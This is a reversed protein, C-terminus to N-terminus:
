ATPTPSSSRPTPTSTSSRSGGTKRDAYDNHMNAAMPGPRYLAVLAAVDEFSSPALSRMLSRMPGGELQFVGISRRPLAPRADRSRGAPHPRHRPRRRAHGQHDRAHRHDRRPEASRPLGDQSGSTRSATCRTSRSSRRWSRTRGARPSASSRLYTTLPEKTIVVAAAHIGDQRRLGELGIAVEIVKAADPDEERMKRLDAAMKYGDEYKPQLDLCAHLPTDRGM